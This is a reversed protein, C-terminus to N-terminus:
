YFKIVIDSIINGAQEASRVAYLMHRYIERLKLMTVVDKLDDPNKFLDAIAEAYLKEMRNEISKARVAHTDAVNPHDAIREMALHIEEASSKLMDAMEELYPNPKVKLIEM